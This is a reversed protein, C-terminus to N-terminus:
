LQHKLLEAKLQFLEKQMELMKNYGQRYFEVERYYDLFSLEELKYAKFLLEESNLNKFTEQYEEYKSRLLQYQRYNEQFMTYLEATEAATNALTYELNFKAAKVKNNNNWLPISLGGLFGSYNSSNVGQYNYGITLDPLIKNKELKVQQEALSERANLMQLETGASLKEDWLTQMEAVASDEFFQFQDTQIPNGGNLKQIDMLTNKIRIEIQDEEFQDQLWALKAKNLELIGIQEANFLRQIQNYVEEAQQVRKEELEKRKQLNQLELLQKKAKLLVEQRMMKYEMELLEKQKHIRKSRSSYVTPFEFRQSIQYEYYDDTQHEGFPLYFASVQPDQLNNETKNGLNKGAIFSQYAKLQRNNQSIEKLIDEMGINQAFSGISILFGCVASVIYRYM